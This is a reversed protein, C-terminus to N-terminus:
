KRMEKKCKKWFGFFSPFYGEVEFMWERPEEKGKYHRNTPHEKFVIHEKSIFRTLEDFEGVFVKINDINKSLQLSFDICKKSVPYLRFFSPEMLLIRQCDEDQHWNPDLNYYNYILTKRNKDLLSTETVSVESVDTVGEFKKTKFLESPVDLLDFKDYSVDLFTGKQHSSFYRNINDQNAYYKKNSNSGAVWQWSLANSAWDGDLLNYYMWRAPNLWHSRGVNCALSAVYMRMHNHMYGTDYFERIAKDIAEIGTTGNMISRPIQFHDVKEQKRKLEKSIDNGKAKWIQQWYDRWALEQVLKEIKNWPLDLNLIHKFVFKTSIVGRSIYPSLKTVKGNKYNRTSAYAVPDINSVRDNIKDLSTPFINSSTSLM